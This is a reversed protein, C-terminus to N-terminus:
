KIYNDVSKNIKVEMDKSIIDLKSEQIGLIDEGYNSELFDTKYDSSDLVFTNKKTKILKIARRWDGSLKLDVVSTRGGVRRKYKSYKNTYPDTNDVRPKLYHLTDDESNQGQDLADNNAKVFRTEERQVIVDMETSVFENIKRLKNIVEQLKKEGAM